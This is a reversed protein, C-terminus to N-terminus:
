TTAVCRVSFGYYRDNGSAPAVNTSGFYLHYAYITSSATRSWYFGRSGVYLLSGNSVFGAYPFNYPPYERVM